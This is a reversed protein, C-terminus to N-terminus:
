ERNRESRTLVSLSVSLRVLVATLQSRFGLSVLLLHVGRRSLSRRSSVHRSEEPIEGDKEDEDGDRRMPTVGPSREGDPDTLAFLDTRANLARQGIKLGIPSTM